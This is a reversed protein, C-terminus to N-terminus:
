NSLAVHTDLKKLASIVLQHFIKLRGPANNRVQAAAISAEYVDKIPLETSGVVCMNFASSVLGSASVLRLFIGKRRARSKIEDYNLGHAKAFLKGWEGVAVGHRSSTALILELQQLHMSERVDDRLIASQLYSEYVLAQLSSPYNGDACLPVDKHFPINEEGRFIQAPDLDSNDGVSFQSTGTSHRSGGNIALPENSYIYNKIVSSISVASYVDPICSLYVAGTKGKIEKLAQMDVFGGNYLMPLDPYSAHGNMVKSLWIKSDRVECGSKLPVDLRGFDKGTL